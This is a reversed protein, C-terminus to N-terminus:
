FKFLNILDVFWIKIWGVYPIRFIAVGLIRDQNISTELGNISISNHDGKTQFYYVEKEQNKSIVRHIIPYPYEPTGKFVLIEGIKINGPDRGRLFMIDGKNFGNKFKYGEFDSKTINFKEYFDQKQEWFTDFNTEHVMSESIVAVLPYNTQMAFGIAPYIIFKILVFALIINVIWSLLSDEEWIFHWMRKVLKKFDM